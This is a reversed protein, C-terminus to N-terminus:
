AAENAEILDAFRVAGLIGESTASPYLARVEAEGLGDRVLSSVANFPLRTGALVPFGGRVHMDISLGPAPTALDPVLRGSDTKFEQFIEEMVVKIGPQGPKEVVDIFEGDDAIWVISKGGSYARLNQGSLHTEPYEERLYSVARRIKQLSTSHRLRVFGRLAVVDEFSYLYPTSSRHAPKLLAGAATLESRWNALQGISAGTLVSTMRTDYVRAGKSQHAAIRRARSRTADYQSDTM